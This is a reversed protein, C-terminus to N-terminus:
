KKEKTPTKKNNPLKKPNQKQVNTLKKYTGQGAKKSFKNSKVMENMQGSLQNRAEQSLQFDAM